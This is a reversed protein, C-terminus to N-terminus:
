RVLCLETGPGASIFAMSKSRRSLSQAKTTVVAQGSGVVGDARSYSSSTRLPPPARLRESLAPDLWAANSGLLRLLWGVNGNGSDDNFPAGITIVQRVLPVMLKSIERASPGGLSWGTSTAHQHHGSLRSLVNSKLGELWEDLDGQPGTNIDQGWDFAECGLSRCHERLRTVSSGDAGLGPFIVAPHGEGPKTGHNMSLAHWALEIAARAPETDM